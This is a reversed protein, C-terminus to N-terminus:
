MDGLSVLRAALAVKGYVVTEMETWPDNIFQVKVQEYRWIQKGELYGPCVKRDHTEVSKQVVSLTILGQKHSHSQQSHDTQIKILFLSLFM